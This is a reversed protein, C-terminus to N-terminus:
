SARKKSPASQAELILQLLLEMREASAAQREQSIRSSTLEAHLRTLWFAFYCFSGAVVLCGGLIGGSILYPIQEFVYITHSAGLYGLVVLALGASLALGGTLLLLRSPDRSRGRLQGAKASLTEYRGIMTPSLTSDLATM